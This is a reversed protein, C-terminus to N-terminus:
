RNNPLAAIRFASCFRGFSRTTHDSDRKEDLEIAPDTPRRKRKQRSAVTDGARRDSTKSWDNPARPAEGGAHRAGGALHPTRTTPRPEPTTTSSRSTTGDPDLVFAAYYGPHYVAREGPAGHDEYGAALAAAHFARVTADHQAPFAVHVHETLAREDRIISFSHGAGKLQVRDPEDVGLELGAYPAITTDREMAEMSMGAHGGHGHGHADDAREVAAHDHPGHDPAVLPDCVHGPVSQGACPYGCEEVWLRLERVSTEEPDYTVTATQAVPNAEVDLVGPRRWLVDEVVPKESAYHLGGVHLTIRDRALTPATM